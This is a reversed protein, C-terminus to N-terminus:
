ADGGVIGGRGGPRYGRYIRLSLALRAKHRGGPRHMLLKGSRQLAKPIEAPACHLVLGLRVGEM